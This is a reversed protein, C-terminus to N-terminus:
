PYVVIVVLSRCPGRSLRLTISMDPIILPANAVVSIPSKPASTTMISCGFTPSGIRSHGCFVSSPSDSAQFDSPRFLRQTVSSRPESRPRSM